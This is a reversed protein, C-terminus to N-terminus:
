RRSLTGERVFGPLVTKFYSEVEKKTAGSYVGTWSKLVEGRASVVLTQPTPGLRYSQIMEESPRVYVPVDIKAQHVYDEANPDLSLAIIRHSDKAAEVVARVNELNRACWQCSPTFVYLLTPRADGSFAITERPGSLRQADISPLVTGPEPGSPPAAQAATPAAVRSSLKFFSAALVINGLLSVALLALVFWDARTARAPLSASSDAM